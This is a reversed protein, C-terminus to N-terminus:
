DDDDDDDQHRHDRHPFRYPPPHNRKWQEAHYEECEPDYGECCCYGDCAFAVTHCILLLAIALAITKM